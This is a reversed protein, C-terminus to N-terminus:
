VSRSAAAARRIGALLAPSLPLASRQGIGPTTRTIATASPWSTLAPSVSAMTSAMFISFTSRASRSPTTFDILTRGPSLMATSATIMSNAYTPTAVGHRQVEGVARVHAARQHARATRTRHREAHRRERAPAKHDIRVANARDRRMGAGEQAPPEPAHRQTIQHREMAILADVGPQIQAPDQRHPEAGPAQRRQDVDSPSTPLPPRARAIDAHHDLRRTFPPQRLRIDIRELAPRWGAPLARAHLVGSFNSSRS